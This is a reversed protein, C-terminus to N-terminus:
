FNEHFDWRRTDEAEKKFAICRSNPVLGLESDPKIFVAVRQKLSLLQHKLASKPNLPVGLCRFLSYSRNTLIYQCVKRVAPWHSDDIAVVGGVRLMKDIYFFDILTYDFTHWGDIFAFDIKTGKAELQPLALYSPQNHFEIIEEYGARRLNELGIGQFSEWGQFQEIQVPDIVMHRTTSTKELADCIFLASIGYALGVELSVQPKVESVIEQLFEGEEPSINSHLKILEGSTTKSHGTKLIEELVSNM